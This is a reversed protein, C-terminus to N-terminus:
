ELLELGYEAGGLSNLEAKIAARALTDIEKSLLSILKKLRADIKYVVDALAQSLGASGGASSGSMGSAMSARAGPPHPFNGAGLSSSSSSASPGLYSHIKTYTEALLECTTILVQFYDLDFPINPTFLFTAEGGEQPLGMSFDAGGSSTASAGGRKSRSGVKFLSKQQNKGGYREEPVAEFEQVLSLLGRLFDHAPSVDLLSSLSMGLVAFRTTRNRMKDNPFATRLDETTLLVTNFWYVRGEGANKLYTWATVRKGILTRLGELTSSLSASPVNPVSGVGGSSGTAGSSASLASLSAATSSSSPGGSGGGSLLSAMGGLTDRSPIRTLAAGAGAVPPALDNADLWDFSATSDDLPPPTPHSSALSALSAHTVQRTLSLKFASSKRRLRPRGSDM